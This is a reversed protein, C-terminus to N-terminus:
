IKLIVKFSHKRWPKIKYRDKVVALAPIDGGVGRQGGDINVTLTELVPLEHLHNANDLMDRTYPHVSAEFPKDLAEVTLTEDGSLKLYRLDTRNGNEQPFLYGHIFDASAGAYIGLDA